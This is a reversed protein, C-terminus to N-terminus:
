RMAGKNRWEVYETASATYEFTAVLDSSDHLNPQKRYVVNAEVYYVSYYLWSKFNELTANVPVTGDEEFQRLKQELDVKTM